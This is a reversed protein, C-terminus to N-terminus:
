QQHNEDVSQSRSKTMMKSNLLYLCRNHNSLTSTLRLIILLFALDVMATLDVKSNPNKSRVVVKKGDGDGTNLEAM